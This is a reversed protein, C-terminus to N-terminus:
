FMESRIRVLIKRRKRKMKPIYFYYTGLQSNVNGDDLM